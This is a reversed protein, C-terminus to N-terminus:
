SSEGGIEPNRYDFFPVGNRQIIHHNEECRGFVGRANFRKNELSVSFVERNHKDQVLDGTQPEFVHLSDPHIYFKDGSYYVCDCFDHEVFAWEKGNTSRSVMGIQFGKPCTFEIGFKEAMWAAAIPSKIYPRNM